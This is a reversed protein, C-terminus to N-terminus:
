ENEDKRGKKRTGEKQKRKKYREKKITDINCTYLFFSFPLILVDAIRKRTGEKQKRKKYRKKKITDINCTYLFFSFTSVVLPM